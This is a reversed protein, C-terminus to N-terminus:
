CKQLQTDSCQAVIEHRLKRKDSMTPVLEMLNNKFANTIPMSCENQASNPFLFFGRSLGGEFNYSCIKFLESWGLFHSYGAINLGEKIVLGIFHNLSDPAM